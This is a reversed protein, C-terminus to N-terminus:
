KLSNAPLSYRKDLTIYRRFEGTMKNPDWAVYISGAKVVYLKGSPSSTEAGTTADFERTNADYAARIKNCVTKDTVYTVQSASVRPIQMDQRLQAHIAETGTAIANIEAVMDASVSDAPRCASSQGVLPTEHFTLAALMLGLLAISRM